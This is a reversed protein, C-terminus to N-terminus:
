DPMLATYIENLQGTERDYIGFGAAWEWYCWGLNNQEAAERVASTWALRSDMDARWYAGFEGLLIPIDRVAGWAAAMELQAALFLREEDSGWPTGLYADMGDAWEAGQHTFTFPEYFHFTALLHDDAPLELLWLSSVANWNGGGVVITRTPNSQRITDIVEAQMTNWLLPTLQDNPENMAEFLLTPPYDAYHTAIQQWLGLLRPLHDTPAVSMEWYHHINLILQLDAALAWGIVEDIRVFFTPDITYPAQTDAHTSWSVPLRVTDFGADAVTRFYDEEVTLGWEGENPSELMNGFNICRQVSPTPPTSPGQALTPPLALSFLVVLVLLSKM